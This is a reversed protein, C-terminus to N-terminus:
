RDNRIEFYDFMANALEILTNWKKRDAPATVTDVL